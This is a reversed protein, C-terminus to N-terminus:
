PLLLSNSPGSYRVGSSSNNVRISLGLSRVSIFQGSGATARFRCAVGAGVGSGSPDIEFVYEIPQVPLTTLTGGAISCTTGTSLDSPNRAQSEQSAVFLTYGQFILEPNSARVRITFNSDSNKTASVLTPPATVSPTSTYNTCGIGWALFLLLRKKM